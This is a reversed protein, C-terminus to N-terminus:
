ALMKKFAASVEMAKQENSHIYTWVCESTWTGHKKISTVPVNANSAASAGLRRFTHFTYYGKPLQMRHLLKALTKRVRADTM